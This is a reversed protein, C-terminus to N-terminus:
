RKLLSNIFFFSLAKVPVSKSVFFEHWRECWFDFVVIVGAVELSDLVVVSTLNGIFVRAPIGFKLRSLYQETYVFLIAIKYILQQKM